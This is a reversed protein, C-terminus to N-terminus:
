TALTPPAFFPADPRFDITRAKKPQPCHIAWDLNGESDLMRKAIVEEVFPLGFAIPCPGSRALPFMFDLPDLQHVPPIITTSFLIPLGTVATSLAPLNPLLTGTLPHMLPSDGIFKTPLMPDLPRLISTTLPNPAHHDEDPVTIVSIDDDDEKRAFFTIELPFYDGGSTANRSLKQVHRRVRAQMTKNNAQEESVGADLLCQRISIKTGSFLKAVAAQEINQRCSEIDLPKIM